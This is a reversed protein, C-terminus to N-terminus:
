DDAPYAVTRVGCEECRYREPQRSEKTHQGYGVSYCGNSCAHVIRPEQWPISAVHCRGYEIDIPRDDLDCRHTTRQRETTLM